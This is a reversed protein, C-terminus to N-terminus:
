TEGMRSRKKSWYAPIPQCLQAKIGSERPSILTKQCAL